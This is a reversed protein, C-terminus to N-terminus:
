PLTTVVGNSGDRSIKERFVWRLMKGREVETLMQRVGPGVGEATPFRWRTTSLKIETWGAPRKGMAATHFVFYHGGDWWIDESNPNSPKDGTSVPVDVQEKLLFEPVSSQQVPASPPSASNAVPQSPQVRGKVQPSDAKEKATELAKTSKALEDQMEQLTAAPVAVLKEEATWTSTFGFCVLLSALIVQRM